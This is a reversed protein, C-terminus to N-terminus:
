GEDDLTEDEASSGSSQDDADDTEWDDDSDALGETLRLFEWDYQTPDPCGQARAWDVFREDGLFISGDQSKRLPSDEWQAYAMLVGDWPITHGKTLLVDVLWKALRLNRREAAWQMAERRAVTFDTAHHDSLYNLIREDYIMTSDCYHWGHIRFGQDEHLWKLLEFHGEKAATICVGDLVPCGADRLLLFM